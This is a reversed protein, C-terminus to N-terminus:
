APPSSAPPSVYRQAYAQRIEPSALLLSVLKGGLIAQYPAIAGAVSIDMMNIGVHSSQDPACTSRRRNPLGAKQHPQRLQEASGEYARRCPIHPPHLASQRTHHRTQGPLPPVSGPCAWDDADQQQKYNSTRVHIQHKQKEETGMQNLREVTEPPAQELEEPTVLDATYIGDIIEDLSCLLWCALAETRRRRSRTCSM